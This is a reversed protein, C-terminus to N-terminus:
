YLRGYASWSKARTLHHSPTEVLGSMRYPRRPYLGGYLGMGAMHSMPDMAGMLPRPRPMISPGYLSGPGYLGYGGMGGYGYGGGMGMRGGGMMLPDMAGYPSRRMMEARMMQEQPSAIMGMGGGYMSGPGYFMNDYSGLGGVGLTNRNYLGGRALHSRGFREEPECDGITSGRPRCYEYDEEEEGYTAQRDLQYTSPRRQMFNQSNRQEPLYGRGTPNLNRSEPRYHPGVSM